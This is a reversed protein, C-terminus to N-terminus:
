EIRCAVKNTLLLDSKGINCERCAVTLNEIINRGGKAKPVIHDIHLEIDPAKRGCYQCKFNFKDLAMFRLRWGKRYEKSKKRIYERNRKQWDSVSKRRAKM